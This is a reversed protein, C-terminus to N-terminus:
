IWAGTEDVKYGDPTTCNVYLAGSSDFCYCEGDMWLWESKAMKCSDKLWYWKGGDLLWTSERAYGNNDFSYWEGNIYKWQDKYYYGNAIDTCYWWGTSNKNWGLNWDSKSTATYNSSVVVFSTGMIGSVIANALNEKNAAYKIMDSYTDIFCLEILMSDCSPAKVVYLSSGDKIGRNAFGLSV